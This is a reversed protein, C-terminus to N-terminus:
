FSQKPPLYVSCCSFALPTGTVENQRQLQISTEAAHGGMIDLVFIGGDEINMAAKALRFYKVVEARLM